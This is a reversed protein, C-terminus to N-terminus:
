QAILYAIKDFKRQLYITSDGYLYNAIKILQEKGSYRLRYINKTKIVRVKSQFGCEQELIKKVTELFSQTGLLEFSISHHIDKPVYFCGDGDFYGRIFHRVMEHNIINIPFTYTFTKQPLVNFKSGIDSVLKKSCYIKIWSSNTMAKYSDNWYSYDSIPGTFDMVTKMKVLHERDSSSLGVTLLSTKFQKGHFVNGDAAMFGAVYFGAESDTSFFDENVTYKSKGCPSDMIIGLSHARSKVSGIPIGYKLGIASLSGLDDYEQQLVEKTLFAYKTM